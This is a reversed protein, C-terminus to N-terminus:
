GLQSSLSALYAAAEPTGEAPAWPAREEPGLAAYPGAKAEFFITGPELAFLTHYTGHPIDVGIREGGAALITTLTVRGAEDFFVAALRGRVVVLTEDKSVDAHRHPQVYSGPEIANLLRNSGEGESVHFNFNKRGRSSAVAGATTRDLLSRDIVRPQRM